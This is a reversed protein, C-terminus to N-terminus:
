INAIKPKIMEMILKIKESDNFLDELSEVCQIDKAYLEFHNYPIYYPNPLACYEKEFSDYLDKYGHKYIFISNQMHNDIIELCFKHIEQNMKDQNSEDFEHVNIIEIREDINKNFQYFQCKIKSTYKKKNNKSAKYCRTINFYNLKFNENIYIMIKKVEIGKNSENKKLRPTIMSFLFRKKLEEVNILRSAEVTYFLMKADQLANHVNKQLNDINFTNAALKLSIQNKNSNIIKSYFKKQINILNIKPMKHIKSQFNLIVRDYNGFVVIQTDDGIFNLMKKYVDENSPKDNFFFQTKNVM